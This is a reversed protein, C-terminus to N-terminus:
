VQADKPSFVVSHPTQRHNELGQIGKLLFVKDQRLTLHIGVHQALSQNWVGRPVADWCTRIQSSWFCKILSLTCYKYKQTQSIESLMTDELNMWMTAKRLSLLIGDHPCFHSLLCVEREIVM